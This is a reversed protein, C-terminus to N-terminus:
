HVTPPELVRLRVPDLAGRQIVVIKSDAIIRADTSIIDKIIENDSQQVFGQWKPQPLRPKAPISEQQQRYHGICLYGNTKRTFAPKGCRDPTFHSHICNLM